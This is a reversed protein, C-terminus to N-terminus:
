RARMVASNLGALEWRRNCGRRVAHFGSRPLGPAKSAPHFCEALITTESLPGGHKADTVKGLFQQLRQM